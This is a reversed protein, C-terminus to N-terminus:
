YSQLRSCFYSNFYYYSGNVEAIPESSPQKLPNSWFHHNRPNNLGSTIIALITKMQERLTAYFNFVASVGSCSLQKTTETTALKYSARRQFM